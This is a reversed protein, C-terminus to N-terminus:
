SRPTATVVIGFHDSSEDAMVEARTIELEHGFVWDIRVAPDWTPFTLAAPDGVTDIASEWGAGTLVDIEPWGPRANLDGALIAPGTPVIQSTVTALQELRTPTNADRHQLHISSVRVPTGDALTVTASVASRRQPGEGYPLETVEVDALEYRSLLANGFQRDAAPAFVVGMQLRHSLWATIDTGGGLLWGRSVEQLAVVDPDEAEIAQALAELDVSVEPTVGYHVNWSVVTLETGPTRDETTTFPTSPWMGSIGVVIVVVAPLAVVGLGPLQALRAPVEPAFSPRWVHSGAVLLLTAAVLVLANPFGLPIDYDIQFLLLPLIAGLGVGVALGALSFRGRARRPRRLMAVLLFATAPVALMLAALTPIPSSVQEPLVYALGILVPLLAGLRLATTPLGRWRQLALITLGTAIVILLHVAGDNPHLAPTAQSQSSLFAPSALVFVGIGLFPGLVWLGRPRDPAAEDRLRWASWTALGVLGLAVLWGLLDSRWVALWTGTLGSFAALSGLGLVLGSATDRAATERQGATSAAVVVAIVLVAVAIAVTALGLVYRPLAASAQLALRAVALTAVGAFLTRGLPRGPRGLRTTLVLAAAVVGPLVYTVLAAVAAPIAGTRLQLDLLVASTLLGEGALTVLVAVLTIRATRFTRAPPTPTSATM